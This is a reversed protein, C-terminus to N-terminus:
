ILSVYSFPLEGLYNIVSNVYTSLWGGVLLVPQSRLIIGISSVSLMLTVAFSILINSIICVLSVGGFAVISIPLTFALASITTTLCNLIYELVRFRVKEIKFLAVLVPNLIIIGATSAASLCFSISGVIFPNILVIIVVAVSLSTLADRRRLTIFSFLLIFYMIGARLVSPTFGCLAMFALTFIGSLLSVIKKNCIVRKCFRFFGGCLITMHMGSVVMVHGVGSNIVNNEFQLSHYSRNGLLVATITAAENYEVKQFLTNEIYSRLEGLTKYFWNVRGTTKAHYISGKVFINESFNRRKTEQSTFKDIVIDCNIEDGVSFDKGDSYLVMKQGVLTKNTCATVKVVYNLSYDNYDNELVMCKIRYNEGELNETPKIQSAYILLINLATILAVIFVFLYKTQKVAVIYYIMMALLLLFLIWISIYGFSISFISILVSIIASLVIPRRM